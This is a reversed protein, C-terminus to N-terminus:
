KSVSLELVFGKNPLNNIIQICKYRYVFMTTELGLM